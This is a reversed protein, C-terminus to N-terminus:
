NEIITVATPEYQIKSGYTNKHVFPVAALRCNATRYSDTLDSYFEVSVDSSKQLYAILDAHKDSDHEILSFTITAKKTNTRKEEEVLSANVWTDIVRFDEVCNYTGKAIYKNPLIVNEIKLRYGNYM